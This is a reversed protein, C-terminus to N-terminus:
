FRSSSPLGPAYQVVRGAASRRSATGRDRRHALVSETRAPDLAQAAEPTLSAADAALAQLEGETKDAYVRRLREQEKDNTAM